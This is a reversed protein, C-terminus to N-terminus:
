LYKAVVERWASERAIAQTGVEGWWAWLSEAAFKSNTWQEMALQLHPITYQTLEVYEAAELVLPALFAADHPQRVIAKACTCLFALRAVEPLEPMPNALYAVAEITTESVVRSRHRANPTVLAVQFDGTFHIWPARRSICALM